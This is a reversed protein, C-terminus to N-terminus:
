DQEGNGGIGGILNLILAAVLVILAVAGLTFASGTTDVTTNTAEALEDNGPTPMVDSIQAVIYIAIILTVAGVAIMRFTASVLASDSDPTIGWEALKKEAVATAMQRIQSASEKYKQLSKMM